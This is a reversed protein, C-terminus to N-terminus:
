TLGHTTRKRPATAQGILAFYIANMEQQGKLVFLHKRKRTGYAVETGSRMLHAAATKKSPLRYFQKKLRKQQSGGASTPRGGQDAGM